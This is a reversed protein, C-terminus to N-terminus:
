SFMRMTYHIISNTLAGLVAGALVGTVALGVLAFPRHPNTHENDTAM